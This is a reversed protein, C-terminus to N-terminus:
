NSMVLESDMKRVKLSVKDLMESSSFLCTRLGLLDRNKEQM